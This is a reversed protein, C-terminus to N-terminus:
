CFQKIGAPADQLNLKGSVMAAHTKKSASNGKDCSQLKLAACTFCSWTASCSVHNTNDGGWGVGVGDVLTTSKFVYFISFRANPKRGPPMFMM